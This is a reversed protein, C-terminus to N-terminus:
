ACIIGCRGGRLCYMAHLRGGDTAVLELARLLILYTLILGIWTVGKGVGWEKAVGEM